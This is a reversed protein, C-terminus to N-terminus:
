SRVGLQLLIWDVAENFNTVTCDPVVSMPEDYRYDIFVTKCGAAQGAAIDRWRDGILFSQSLDINYKSAAATMMGPKPKRCDCQHSDDHPCIYVEDMPLTDYIRQHFADVIKSDQKGRAIDPQNTVIFLRFGSQKLNQCGQIVGPLFEFQELTDPPYPKGNRVISRNIVGDRDMFVARDMVTEDVGM